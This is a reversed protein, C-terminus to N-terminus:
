EIEKYRSVNIRRFMSRKFYDIGFIKEFRIEVKRKKTIKYDKM